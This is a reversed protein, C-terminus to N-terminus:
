ADMCSSVPAYCTTVEDHLFIFWILYQDWQALDMTVSVRILDYLCHM